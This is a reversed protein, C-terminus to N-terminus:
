KATWPHYSARLPPPTGNRKYFCGCDLCPWGDEACKFNRLYGKFCGCRKTVRTMAETRFRVADVCDYITTGDVYYGYTHIDCSNMTQNDNESCSTCTWHKLIWQKCRHQHLVGDDFLMLHHLSTTLMSENQWNRFAFVWDSCSLRIKDHEPERLKPPRTISSSSCAVMRNQHEFYTLSIILSTLFPTFESRQQPSDMMSRRLLSTLLVRHEVIVVGFFHQPIHKIFHNFDCGDTAIASTLLHSPIGLTDLENFLKDIYIYYDSVRHVIQRYRLKTNLTSIACDSDCYVILTHKAFDEDM